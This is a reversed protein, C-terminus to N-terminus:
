QAEVSWRPDVEGVSCLKAQKACAQLTMLGFFPLLFKSPLYCVVLVLVQKVVEPSVEVSPGSVLDLRSVEHVHDANCPIDFYRGQLEDFKTLLERRSYKILSVGTSGVFWELFVYFM